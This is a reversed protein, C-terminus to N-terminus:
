FRHPSSRGTLEEVLWRLWPGHCCATAVAIYEVECTSLTVVRQKQSRWTIPCSNLVFLVGITSKRGDVDGAMDNDGGLTSSRMILQGHDAMFRSLYGVTFRIDPRTHTLYRLGEIISQYETADVKTTTSEKSLKLKEEMLTQCPNCGSLGGREVLKRSYSSQKLTIADKRQRVEIGLCYTLLDLDSMKFRKMM